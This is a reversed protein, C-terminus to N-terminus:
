QDHTQVPGAAVAIASVALAEHQTTFRDFHINERAVGRAQLLAAAADIMAPPGCLYGHAGPALLRPIMDTVLGRAGAWTSDDAAESLVPVFRFTGRWQRAIAAIEDLAYLDRQTRAGFLLTVPRSM